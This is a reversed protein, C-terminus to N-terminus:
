KLRLSEIKKIIKDSCEKVEKLFVANRDDGDLNKKWNLFISAVNAEEAAEFFLTNYPINLIPEKLKLYRAINKVNYKSHKDYKAIIIMNKQKDKKEMQNCINNVASITRMKQNIVNININAMKMIIDKYEKGINSDLDVLVIDYYQDAKAIIEPYTDQVTNHVNESGLLFELRGKFVTKAYNTVVEPTLKNSRVVRELSRVGNETDLNVNKGFISLNKEKKKEQWFCPEIADFKNTTSIVLINLNNDIAMNTAIAVLSMTKGVQSLNDNVFTVISM